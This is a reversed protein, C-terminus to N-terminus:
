KISFLKIAANLFARGWTRKRLWILGDVRRNEKNFELKIIRRKGVRLNKLSSNGEHKGGRCNDM